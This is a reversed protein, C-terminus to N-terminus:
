VVGEIEAQLCELVETTIADTAWRSQVVRLIRLVRERERFAGNGENLERLTQEATIPWASNAM